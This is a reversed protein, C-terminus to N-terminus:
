ATTYSNVAENDYVDAEFKIIAGQHMYHSGEVTVVASKNTNDPKISYIKGQIQQWQMLIYKEENGYELPPQIATTKARVNIGYQGTSLPIVFPAFTQIHGYLTIKGSAKSAEEAICGNMVLLSTLFAGLVLTRKFM